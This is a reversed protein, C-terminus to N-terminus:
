RRPPLLCSQRVAEYRRGYVSLAAAGADGALLGIGGFNDCAYVMDEEVREGDVAGDVALVLTVRRLAETRADGQFAAEIRARLRKRNEGTPPSLLFLVPEGARLRGVAEDADTVLAADREEVVRVHADDPDLGLASLVGAGGAEPAIVHVPPTVAQSPRLAAYGAVVALALVTAGVLLRRGAM